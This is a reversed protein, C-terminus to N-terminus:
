PSSADQQSPTASSSSEPGTSSSPERNALFLADNYTQVNITEVLRPFTRLWDVIERHTPSESFSWAKIAYAARDIAADFRLRRKRAATADEDIKTTPKGDPGKVYETANRIELSRAVGDCEYMCLEDSDIGLIEIWDDTKADSLPDQLYVRAGKNHADRTNYRSKDGM